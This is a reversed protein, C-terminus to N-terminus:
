SSAGPDLRGYKRSKPAEFPAAAFAFGSPCSAYTYSGNLGNVCMGGGRIRLGPSVKMAIENATVGYTTIDIRCQSTSFNPVTDPRGREEAAMKQSPSQKTRSVEGLM